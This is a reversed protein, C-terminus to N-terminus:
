LRIQYLIKSNSCLPEWHFGRFHKLDYIEPILKVM